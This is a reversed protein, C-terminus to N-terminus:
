TTAPYIGHNAIIKETPQYIADWDSTASYAHGFLKGNYQGNAYGSINFMPGGSDGSAVSASTEWVDNTKWHKQVFGWSLGGGAGMKYVFQGKHESSSTAYSAIDIKTNSGYYIDDNIDVSTRQFSVDGSSPSKTFPYGTGDSVQEGNLPQLMARNGTNHFDVAHGATVYGVVSGKTAKYGISGSLDSPDDARAIAVGGVLPRCKQLYNTCTVPKMSDVTILVDDEGVADRIKEAIAVSSNEFKVIDDFSTTLEVTMKKQEYDIGAMVFASDSGDYRQHLEAAIKLFRKEENPDMKMFEIVEAQLADIQARIEIIKSDRQKIEAQKEAKESEPLSELDKKANFQQEILDMGQLDFVKWEEVFDRPPIEYIIENLDQNKVLYTELLQKWEADNATKM